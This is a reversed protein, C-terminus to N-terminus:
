HSAFTSQYESGCGDAPLDVCIFRVSVSQPTTVTPPYFFMENSPGNLDQFGDLGQGLVEIAVIKTQPCQLSRYRTHDACEIEAQRGDDSKAQFRIAYVVKGESLVMRGLLCSVLEKKKLTRPESQQVRLAPRVKPKASLQGVLGLLVSVLICMSRM